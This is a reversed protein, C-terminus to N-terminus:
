AVKANTEGGSLAAARSGLRTRLFQRVDDLRNGIVRKPIYYARKPAYYVFLFDSTEAAETIADWRLETTALANGMQLSSDTFRFSQPERLSPTRAFQRRVQRRLLRPVVVLALTVLLLIVGYLWLSTLPTGSALALVPGVVVVVAWGWRFFWSEQHRALALAARVHEAPEMAFTFMLADSMECAISVM